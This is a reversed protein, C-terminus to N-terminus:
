SSGLRLTEALSEGLGVLSGSFLLLSYRVIKLPLLSGSGVPVVFLNSKGSVEVFM